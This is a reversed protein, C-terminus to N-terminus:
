ASLAKKWAQIVKRNRKELTQTMLDIKALIDQMEWQHNSITKRVAKETQQSLRSQCLM